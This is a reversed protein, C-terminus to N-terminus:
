PVGVGADPAAGTTAPREVLLTLTTIFPPFVPPNVGGVRTVTEMTLKVRSAAIVVKKNFPRGLQENGYVPM